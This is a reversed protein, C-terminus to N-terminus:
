AKDGKPDGGVMPDGLKALPLYDVISKGHDDALRIGKMAFLFAFRLVRHVRERKKDDDLAGFMPQSLKSAWTDSDKRWFGLLTVEKLGTESACLSELLPWIGDAPPFGFGLRLSTVTRPLRAAIDAHFTSPWSLVLSPTRVSSILELLYVGHTMIRVVDLDHASLFKCIGRLLALPEANNDEIGSADWLAITRLAPFNSRSHCLLDGVLSALTLSAYELVFEALHPFNWAFNPPTLALEESNLGKYLCLKITRLNLFRGMHRLSPVLQADWDMSTYLYTLSVQSAAYLATRAIKSGVTLATINSASSVIEYVDNIHSVNEPVDVDLSQIYTAVNHGNTRPSM